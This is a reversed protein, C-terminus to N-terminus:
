IFGGGVLSPGILNTIQTNQNYMGVMPIRNNNREEETNIDKLGYNERTSYPEDYLTLDVFAEPFKRYNRDVFPAWSMYYPDFQEDRYISDSEHMGSVIDYVHNSDQHTSSCARCILKTYFKEIPLELGTGFGLKKAEKLAKKCDWKDLLCRTLAIFLGSRDKGRRCHVFTPIDPNILKHINYILLNKLSNLRSPDIDIIIQELGFKKCIPSIMMGSLKDLSIIKKIGLDQALFVVDSFSPEGGRFLNERVIHFNKIM